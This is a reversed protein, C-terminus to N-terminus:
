VEKKAKKKDLRLIKARVEETLGVAAFLAEVLSPNFCWMMFVILPIMVFVFLLFFIGAFMDLVFVGSSMALSLANVIKSDIESLWVLLFLLFSFIISFMLCELYKMGRM